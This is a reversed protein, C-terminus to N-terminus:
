KVDDRTIGKQREDAVLINTCWRSSMYLTMGKEWRDVM